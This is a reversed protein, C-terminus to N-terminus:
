SFHRPSIWDDVCDALWSLLWGTQRSTVHGWICVYLRATRPRTVASSKTGDFEAIFIGRSVM